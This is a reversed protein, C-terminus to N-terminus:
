LSLYHKFYYFFVIFSSYCISAWGWIQFIVKKERVLLIFNPNTSKWPKSARNAQTRFLKEHLSPSHIWSGHFYIHLIPWTWYPQIQPTASTYWMVFRYKANPVGSNLTFFIFYWPYLKLKQLLFHAFKILRRNLPRHFTSSWIHKGGVKKGREKDTGCQFDSIQDPFCCFDNYYLLSWKIAFRNIAFNTNNCFFSLCRDM